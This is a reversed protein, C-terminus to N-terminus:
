RRALSLRQSESFLLELAKGAPHQPGLFARKIGLARGALEKAKGFHRELLLLWAASAAADGQGLSQPGDVEGMRDVAEQAKEPTFPMDTSGSLLAAGSRMLAVLEAACSNVGVQDSCLKIAEEFQKDADELKGHWQLVLAPWPSTAVFIPVEGLMGDIRCAETIMRYATSSAFELSEGDRDGSLATGTSSSQKVREVGGGGGDPDSTRAPDATSGALKVLAQCALKVPSGPGGWAGMVRAAEGALESAKHSHGGVHLLWAAEACAEGYARSDQGSALIAGAVAEEAKEPGFGSAWRGVMRRGAGQIIRIASTAPSRHGLLSRSLNACKELLVDAGGAAEDGADFPRRSVQRTVGDVLSLRLEEPIGEGGLNDVALRLLIGAQGVARDVDIMAPESVVGEAPVAEAVGLEALMLECAAAAGSGLGQWARLVRCANKLLREAEQLHGNRFLLWGAQAAARGAPLSDQGSSSVVSAILRDAQSPGFARCDVSVESPGQLLAVLETALSGAGGWQAHRKLAEEFLKSVEAAGGNRQAAAASLAAARVAVPPKKGQRRYAEDLLRGVVETSRDADVQPHAPSEPSLGSGLAEGTAKAVAGAELATSGPPAAPAAITEDDLVILTASVFRPPEADMPLAEKQDQVPISPPTKEVALVVPEEENGAAVPTAKTGAEADARKAASCSVILKVPREAGKDVILTAVATVPIPKEEMFLAQSASQTVGSQPNSCSLILKVPRDSTEDVIVTASPGPWSKSGGQYKLGPLKAGPSDKQSSKQVLAAHRLAEENLTLILVVPRAAASRASASQSEAQPAHLGLEAAEVHRQAPSAPLRGAKAEFDDAAAKGAEKKLVDEVASPTERIVSAEAARVSVPHM